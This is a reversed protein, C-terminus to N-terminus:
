KKPPAASTGTLIKTAADRVEDASKFKDAPIDAVVQKLGAVMTTTQKLQAPTLEYPTLDLKWAGDIRKLKITPAAGQGPVKKPVLTAVEGSIREERDAIQKLVQEAAADSLGNEFVSNAFSKKTVEPGFKQATAAGLARLTAYTDVVAEIAQQQAPTGTATSKAADADGALMARHFAIAASKPSSLDAKEREAARAVLSLLLLTLLLATRM